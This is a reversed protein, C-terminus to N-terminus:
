LECEQPKRCHKNQKGILRIAEYSRCRLEEAIDAASMKPYADVYYARVCSECAFGGGFSYPTGSCAKHCVICYFRPETSEDRIMPFSVNSRNSKM